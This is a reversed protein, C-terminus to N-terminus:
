VNFLCIVWVSFPSKWKLWYLCNLVLSPAPNTGREGPSKVPNANVEISSFRRLHLFGHKQTVKCRDSMNNERELDSHLWMSVYYSTRSWPLVNVQGCFFCFREELRKLETILLVTCPIGLTMLSLSNVVPKVFALGTTIGSLIGIVVKFRSRTQFAFVLWVLWIWVQLSKVRHVANHFESLIRPHSYSEGSLM